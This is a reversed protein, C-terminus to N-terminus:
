CITTMNVGMDGKLQLWSLIMCTDLDGLSDLAVVWIYSKEAAFSKKAAEVAADCTKHNFPPSQVTM